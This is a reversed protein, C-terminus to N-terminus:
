ASAVASPAPVALRGALVDAAVQASVLSGSHTLVHHAGLVAPDAPLEHDVVVVDPRQARVRLVVDRQWPRRRVGRVVVV